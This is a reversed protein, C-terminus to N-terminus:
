INDESKNKWWRNKYLPLSNEPYISLDYPINNRKRIEEPIREYRYYTDSGPTFQFVGKNRFEIAGDYDKAARFIIKM